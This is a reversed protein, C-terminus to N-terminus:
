PETTVKLGTKLMILAKENVRHMAAREKELPQKKEFFLLRGLSLEAMAASTSSLKSLARRLECRLASCRFGRAALGLALEALTESKCARRLLLDGAARM